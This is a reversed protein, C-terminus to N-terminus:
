EESKETEAASPEPEYKELDEDEDSDSIERIRRVISELCESSNVVAQIIKVAKKLENYRDVADGIPTEGDIDKLGDRIEKKLDVFANYRKYLFNLLWTVASAYEDLFALSDAVREQNEELREASCESIEAKRRYGRARRINWSAVGAEVVLAALAILLAVALVITEM